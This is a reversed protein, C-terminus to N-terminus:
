KCYGCRQCSLSPKHRENVGGRTTGRRHIYMYMGEGREGEGKELTVKMGVVNPHSCAERHVDAEERFHAESAMTRPVRKVAVVEGTAKDTAKCVTGFQGRGLTEGSEVTYFQLSRRLCLSRM